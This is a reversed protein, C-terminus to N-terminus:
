EVAALGAMLKVVWWTAVFCNPPIELILV